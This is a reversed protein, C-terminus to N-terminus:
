FNHQLKEGLINQPTIFKKLKLIRLKHMEKLVLAGNQLFKIIRIAQEQLIKIQCGYILHSSFLFYYITKILHQSTFHKLLTYLHKMSHGKRQKGMGISLLIHYALTPIKLQRILYMDGVTRCQRSIFKKM